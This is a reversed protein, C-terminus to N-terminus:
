VYVADDTSGGMLENENCVGSLHAEETYGSSISYMSNSLHISNDFHPHPHPSSPRRNFNGPRKPGGTAKHKIVLNCDAIPFLIDENNMSASNLRSITYTPRPSNTPSISPTRIENSSHNSSSSCRSKCVSSASSSSSSSSSASPSRSGGTSILSPASSLPSEVTPSMSSTSTLEIPKGKKQSTQQEFNKRLESVNPYTFSEAESPTRASIASVTTLSSTTMTTSMQLAQSLDTTVARPRSPRNTSTAHFQEIRKQFNPQNKHYTLLSIPSSTNLTSSRTANFPLVKRPLTTTVFTKAKDLSTEHKKERLQKWNITPYYNDTSTSLSREISATQEATEDIQSLNVFHQKSPSILLSALSSPTIQNQESSSSPYQKNSSIGSIASDCSVAKSSPLALHAHPESYDSGVASDAYIDETSSDGEDHWKSLGFCSHSEPLYNRTSNNTAAILGGHRTSTTYYINTDDIPNRLSSQEHEYNLSSQDQNYHSFTSQNNTTDDDDDDLDYKIRGLSKSRRDIRGRSRARRRHTADAAVYDMYTYDMNSYPTPSNENKNNSNSGRAKKSRLLTRFQAAIELPNLNSNNLLELHELAATAVDFQPPSSSNSNSM